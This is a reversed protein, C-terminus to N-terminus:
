TAVPNQSKVPGLWINLDNLCCDRLFSGFKAYTQIFDVATDCALQGPGRSFTKLVKDTSISLNFWQARLRM